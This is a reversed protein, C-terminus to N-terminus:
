RPDIAAAALLRLATMSPMFFYDGGKTEVFNPLATCLFPPNQPDDAVGQIMFRGTGSSNGVLADRDNGLHNDNGYDIWQQQVFEFQRFLSANLAMFIVGKEDTDSVPEDEPTWEGYPLGRRIIRRRDTLQGHFGFSSRPNVRRLHAGMPCRSGTPDDAFTFDTNRCDDDALAPDPKDPSLALPTGDRWRGAFKAALKEPGGPYLAGVRTLYERWSAVNQHLKRYVMFTGNKALLHPLPAPPLELQEDPYELIFEGTAIPEWKGEKTLKGQGPKANEREAGHFDPNGFGDRFGFHESSVFKGDRVLSGAEQAYVVRAGGTENMWSELLACHDQLAEATQANVGLWVHVAGTQWVPDWHAPDNRGVDGLILHRAKMGELFEQPFTLMSGEPVGLQRLGAQTLAINTAILPKTDDWLEGTTIAPLIRDLFARAKAEELLELLLYRAFPFRYGRLVFGQIDATNLESM